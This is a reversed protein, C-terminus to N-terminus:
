AAAASRSGFIYFRHRFCRLPHCRDFTRVMAMRDTSVRVGGLPIFLSKAYLYDQATINYEPVFVCNWRDANVWYKIFDKEVKLGKLIEKLSKQYSLPNDGHLVPYTASGGFILAQTIAQAYADNFGCSYAYDELTKIDDPTFDSCVFHVGDLSLCGAKKNIIRAPVGGNAYYSTAETPTISVPIFSETQMGPDIIVCEKSEDYLVYCCERLDNFYFTKIQIMDGKTKRSTCFYQITLSKQLKTGSLASILHM